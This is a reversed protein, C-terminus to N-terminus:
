LPACLETAAGECCQNTRFSYAEGYKEKCSKDLAQFINHSAEPRARRADEVQRWYYTAAGGAVVMGAVLLIYVRPAMSGSACAAAVACVDM